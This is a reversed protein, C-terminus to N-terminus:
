SVCYNQDVEFDKTRPRNLQAEATTCGLVSLSKNEKTRELLVFRCTFQREDPLILVSSVKRADRDEKSGAM